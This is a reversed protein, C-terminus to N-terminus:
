WEVRWRGQCSRASGPNGHVEGILLESPVETAGCNPGDCTMEDVLRTGGCVCADDAVQRECDVCMMVRPLGGNGTRPQEHRPRVQNALEERVPVGDALRRVVARMTRLPRSPVWGTDGRLSTTM